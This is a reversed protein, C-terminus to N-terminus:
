TTLSKVIRKKNRLAIISIGIGIVGVLLTALCLVQKEIPTEQWATFRGSVSSNSIL